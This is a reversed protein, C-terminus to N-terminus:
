FATAKLNLGQREEIGFMLNMNQVAQGSAGKLLNDIISVIFLKNGHKELHILAKNTNVIQKLDINKKSLHTFPHSNYYTEYLDEAEALTLTCETYMAALIGRTFDGRQPIFSLEQNFGSDLQKLSEGIENLHQHGFAKYVSLNNNRWSFHSTAALSQGAGTSGTTANIHVENKLLGKDALPLLGLQICTAFCGPNAINNAKKIADRNLEPLGYIFNRNALQTGMAIPIDNLRFDQSLDIIKINENITNTTLFKKADGHGVCLFLVDIEQEIEGTFSLDTDGILDTHVDSILNGANSTSNVFAIEVNPHNILIRLMEGGTYGAGGIIGAKIKTM